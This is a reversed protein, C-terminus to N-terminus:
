QPSYSAIVWSGNVNRLIIKDYKYQVHYKNPNLTDQFWVTNPDTPKSSVVDYWKINAQYTIDNIYIPESVGAHNTFAISGDRCDAVFQIKAEDGNTPPIYTATIKGFRPDVENTVNSFDYTRGFCEQSVSDFRTIPYSYTYVGDGQAIENLMGYQEGLCFWLVDLSSLENVSEFYPTELFMLCRRATNLLLVREDTIEEVVANHLSSENGGILMNDDPKSLLTATATGGIVIFAAVVGAIIKTVIPLAAIKAGIGVATATTTTAVATTTASTASVTIVTGTATTVGEAVFEASATPMGKEFAGEFIWKFFPFFPIAHLKINHKKEYEDVSNKIAKRAYNLRSKVTGESVGQIEAIQKVSMEDFYYMMVASRQEESLEDLIAMVTKKFDAKDLAEDPIFEANDEKLTDFITNGDEDEDVLVDKKKKFYRTCQHYTIQKAWTVFAAPENLNVLTNIIEVFAEQTIDLALEDDKVTKLAFYYFDNYFANFLENMADNDGKQASTVLSVLKQKEMTAGREFYM